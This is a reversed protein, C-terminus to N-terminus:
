PKVGAADLIERAEAATLGLANLLPRTPWRYSHGVKLPKVPTTGKAAADYFADRSGGCLVIAARTELTAPLTGALTDTMGTM